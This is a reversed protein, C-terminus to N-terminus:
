IREYGKELYHREVIKRARFPYILMSIGITFFALIVYLFFHKYIGKVLFYLAGFLLSWFFPGIYGIRITHQNLPHQYRPM